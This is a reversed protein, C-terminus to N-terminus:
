PPEVPEGGARSALAPMIPAASYAIFHVTGDAFLFHAGGPHLSWYHFMDCQNTLEGPGYPYSGPACSGAKVPLVNQEYVGMLMECSGTSRQGAGAYWWGFELDASPPREGALLTNSTGDTIDGMRISSDRFLVGDNTTLDLGSVGLYSTFAVTYGHLPAVHPQTARDDAPCAFVPMVTALGLHPPNRFPSSSHEYAQETTLWLPGQDLHPLLQTLWSMYRYPDSGHDFRMGVPFVKNAGHFQHAALGIQKLNNACASRAAAARVKQVAPILIAILVAVIAIVVLVEILTVGFRCGRKM